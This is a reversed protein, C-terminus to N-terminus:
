FSFYQRVNVPCSHLRLCLSPVQPCPTPSSPSHPILPSLSMSADVSGRTVCGAWLFKSCSEPSEFGPETVVWFPPFPHSTPPLSWLSRVSTYRQSVWTSAMSKNHLLKGEILFLNSFFFFSVKLSPSLCTNQCDSKTPLTGDLPLQRYHLKSSSSLIDPGLSM